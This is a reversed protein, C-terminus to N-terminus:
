VVYIFMGKNPQGPTISSDAGDYAWVGLTYLAQDGRDYDQNATIVGTDNDLRFAQCDVCDADFYYRVWNNPYTGDLDIAIVSFVYDGTETEGTVAGLYQGDAGLGEFVPSHDNVDGVKVNM